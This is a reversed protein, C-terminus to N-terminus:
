YMTKKARGWWERDYTEGDIAAERLDALVTGIGPLAYRAVHKEPNWLDSRLIALACQFFVNEVTVALVSRPADGRPSVDLEDPGGTM